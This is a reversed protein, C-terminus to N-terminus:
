LRGLQQDRTRNGDGAGPILCNWGERFLVGEAGTSLVPEPLRYTESALGQDITAPTRVLKILLWFIRARLIKKLGPFQTNRLAKAWRQSKVADAAEHLSSIGCQEAL